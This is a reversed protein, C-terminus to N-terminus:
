QAVPNRFDVIRVFGGDWDMHLNIGKPEDCVYRSYGHPAKGFARFNCDTLIEGVKERSLAALDFQDEGCDRAGAELLKERIKM